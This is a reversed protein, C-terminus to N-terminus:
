IYLLCHPRGKNQVFLAVRLKGDSVAPEITILSIDNATYQDSTQESGVSRRTRVSDTSSNDTGHASTDVETKNTNISIASPRTGARNLIIVIVSPIRAHVGASDQLTLFYTM